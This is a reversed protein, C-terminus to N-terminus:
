GGPQEDFSCVVLDYMDGIADVCEQDDVCAIDTPVPTDFLPQWFDFRDGDICFPFAASGDATTLVVDTGMVEWTGMAVEPMGDDPIVCECTPGMEQCTAMPNDMQLFGEFVDCPVGLCAMPDLGITAQSQIDFDQTFSGDDAFTLTGTQSLIELAFTSGPCMGELPNPIEEFGCTDELAWTGVPDGGCPAPTADCGPAIPMGDRSMVTAVNGLANVGVCTGVPPPEGTTDTTETEGPESTTSTEDAVATTSSSSSESAATTDPDPGPGGDTSTGSTSTGTAGETESPTDDAPCGALLGLPGILVALALSSLSFTTSTSTPSPM